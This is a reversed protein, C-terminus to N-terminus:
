GYPSGQVSHALTIRLRRGPQATLEEPLMANNADCVVWFLEPDGLHQATIRDLREGEKVTHHDIEQLSDARPLFRRRLYVVDRDEGLELKARGVTAYRSSPSLLDM